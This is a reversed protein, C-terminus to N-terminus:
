AGKTGRPMMTTFVFLEKFIEVRVVREYITYRLDYIEGQRGERGQTKANFIGMNM